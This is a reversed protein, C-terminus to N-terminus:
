EDDQDGAYPTYLDGDNTYDQLDPDMEPDLPYIHVLSIGTVLIEGDQQAM